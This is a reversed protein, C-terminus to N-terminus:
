HGGRWKNPLTWKEDCFFVLFMFFSNKWNSNNLQSSFPNSISLTLILHLPLLANSQLSWFCHWWQVAEFANVIHWDYSTVHLSLCSAWGSTFPSGFHGIVLKHTDIRDSLFFHARMFRLSCHFPFIIEVIFIKHNLTIQNLRSHSRLPLTTYIIKPPNSSSLPPM